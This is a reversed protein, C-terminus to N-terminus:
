AVVIIAIHTSRRKGIKQHHDGPLRGKETRTRRSVYARIVAQIYLDQWITQIFAAQGPAVIAAGECAHSAQETARLDLVKLILWEKLIRPAPGQWVNGPEIGSKQM